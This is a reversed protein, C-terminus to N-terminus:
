ALHGMKTSLNKLYQTDLKMSHCLEKDRPGSDKQMSTNSEICFIVFVQSGILKILADADIKDMMRQFITLRCKTFSSSYYNSLNFLVNKM